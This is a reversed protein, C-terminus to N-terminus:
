GPPLIEFSKSDFITDRRSNKNEWKQLSFGGVMRHAMQLLGM